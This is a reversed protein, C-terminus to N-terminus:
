CVSEVEKVGADVDVKGIITTAWKEASWVKSLQKVHIRDM